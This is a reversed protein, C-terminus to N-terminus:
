DDPRDAAPRPEAVSERSRSDRAPRRPRARPREVRNVGKVSLFCDWESPGVLRPREAPELPEGDREVALPVREDEAQERTLVVSFGGSAITVHRGAPRAAAQALLARLSVGRWRQAPRSWGEHCHFDAVVEDAFAAVDDRTLDLPLDVEGCILLGIRGGSNAVCLNYSNRM